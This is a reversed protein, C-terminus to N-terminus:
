KEQQSNIPTLSNTWMAREEPPLMELADQVLVGGISNNGTATSSEGISISGTGTATGNAPLGYTRSATATANAPLGFM